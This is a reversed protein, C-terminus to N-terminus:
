CRYYTVNEFGTLLLQVLIDSIRFQQLMTHEHFEQLLTLIRFITDPM